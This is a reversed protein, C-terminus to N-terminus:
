GASWDAVVSAKTVPSLEAEHRYHPHDCVLVTAEALIRSAVPPPLAVKVYHVSATVEDRTLQSAHAPDVVCRVETAGDGDGVRVAIHREVGVLKPLWERLEAESTLEVFLTMSLEGPAPLLPNYVDLEAQIQADELIREARAMEQVQFRVTTRNEFVVSLLPGLAVRRLKKLAIVNQRLEDREREYARLDAIDSLTLVNM